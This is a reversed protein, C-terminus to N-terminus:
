PRNIMNGSVNTSQLGLQQGNNQLMAMNPVASIQQQQQQTQSQPLIPTSMPQPTSSNPNSLMESTHSPTSQTSYTTMSNTLVSEQSEQSEDTMVGKFIEEVDKGDLDFPSNLIDILEDKIKKDNLENNNAIGDLVSGKSNEENIITNVLDNDLLDGSFVLANLADTDSNNADEDLFNLESKLDQPALIPTTSPIAQINSPQQKTNQNGLLKTNIQIQHPAAAAGQVLIQQFQKQSPNQSAFSLNLEQKQQIQKAKISEFMKLEDASLKITKEESQNKSEDDSNPMEIKVSPNVDLLPKGFFAEQLYAPYTEILKSKQKRRVPKKKQKGDSQQSSPIQQAPEQDLSTTLEDGDNKSNSRVARNRVSFGGIGLKQLNRQRKKRLVVQGTESTGLTFGDPAPETGSWLMGDKYIQAEENPDLPELKIDDLSNDLSSGAVVSEIAALIGADKELEVNTKPKRKTRKPEQQLSKIQQLGCESLYVGDIYHNGELSLSLNGGINNFDIEDTGISSSDHSNSSKQVSNAPSSTLNPKLHAPLTDKPRCLICVYEEKSCKEADTETKISDCTGHLWRNCQTCSIILEGDSYGDQCQPCSIQSACPGCETYSNMWSSNVGPDNAGCKLCMACWKCKWTGHPVTTLPPDMCYIHYSIDCDDCLILRAEDNKQGCGECVTCDLCRWGKQLIVKTVKVSVCYPHYCQGCQACSILCGEHDTGIAGCMVCIDQTLVFKDKASCLVLRNEGGPEEESLNKSSDANPRQLSVGGFAGLVKTKPGRKRGFDALRARKQFGLKGGIGGSLMSSKLKQLSNNSSGTCSTLNLRKKAIKSAVFPKGKGLGFDTSSSKTEFSSGLSDVEM